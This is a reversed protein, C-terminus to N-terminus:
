PEPGRGLVRGPYREDGEEGGREELQPRGPVTPAQECTEPQGRSGGQPCEEDGVGIGQDVIVGKPVPQRALRPQGPSM